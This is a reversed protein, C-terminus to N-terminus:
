SVILLATDANVIPSRATRSRWWRCRCTSRRWFIAAPPPPISSSASPIRSGTWAPSRRLRRAARRNAGAGSGAPARGPNRSGRVRREGDDLPPGVADRYQRSRAHRHRQTGQHPHRSRRRSNGALTDFPRVTTGSTVIQISSGDDPVPPGGNAPLTELDACQDRDRGARRGRRLRAGDGTRVPPNIFPPRPQVRRGFHERRASRSGRTRSSFDLNGSM